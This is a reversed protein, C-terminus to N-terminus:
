KELFKAPMIPADRNKAQLIIRGTIKKTVLSYCLITEPKNRVDVICPSQYSTYSAAFFYMQMMDILFAFHEQESSRM